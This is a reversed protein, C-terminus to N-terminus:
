YTHYVISVTAAHNAGIACAIKASIRSNAAILPTQFVQPVIADFNSNKAFRINGVLVESSVAGSYLSLQYVDNDSIDEIGINHIDFDSTITSPPLLEVFGGYTWATSDSTVVIGDALSPYVEQVGHIHELLTKIRGHLSTANHTDTKNGIAEHQYTNAASDQAPVLVKPTLNSM